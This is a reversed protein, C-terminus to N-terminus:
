AFDITLEGLDILAGAARLVDMGMIGAFISRREAHLREHGGV